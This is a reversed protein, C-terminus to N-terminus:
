NPIYLKQGEMAKNLDASGKIEEAGARLVPFFFVNYFFYGEVDEHGQVGVQVPRAGIGQENHKTM